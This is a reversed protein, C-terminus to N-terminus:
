LKVLKRINWLNKNLYDQIIFFLKYHFYNIQLMNHLLSLVLVPYPFTATFRVPGLMNILVTM